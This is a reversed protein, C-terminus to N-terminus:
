KVVKPYNNPEVVICRRPKSNEWVQIPGTYTVTKGNMNTLANDINDNEMDYSVCIAEKGAEIWFVMSAYKLTGTVTGNSASLLKPPKAAYAPLFFTCFASALIFLRILKM